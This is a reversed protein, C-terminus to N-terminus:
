KNSEGSTSLRRNIDRSRKGKNDTMADKMEQADAKLQNLQPLNHIRAYKIAPLFVLLYHFLSPFGAKKTTDATTFYSGERNIFVKVGESFAYNPIPDLFFGNATMDYRIPTGQVDQGDSFSDVNTRANNKAQQDVQDIEVYVGEPNKVMVKYIDLIMNGQEDLTFAYDRQGSVLGTEIIPYKTHNIDDFQWQGGTKFLLAFVEDMANNIDATFKAFLTTDGLIDGDNFGVEDEIHQILGRKTTTNSFEISM